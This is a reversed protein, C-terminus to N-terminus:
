LKTVPFLERPKEFSLVILLLQQHLRTRRMKLFTYFRFFYKGGLLNAIPAKRSKLDANFIIDTISSKRVFGLAEDENQFSKKFIDYENVISLSSAGAAIILSNTDFMFKFHEENTLGTLGIQKIEM